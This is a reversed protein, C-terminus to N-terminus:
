PKTVEDEHPDYKESELAAVLAARRLKCWVPTKFSGVAILRPTEPHRCSVNNGGEYVHACDVCTLHIRPGNTENVSM